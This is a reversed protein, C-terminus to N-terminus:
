ASPYQLPPLAPLAPSNRDKELRELAQSWAPSQDSPTAPPEIKLEPLPIASSKLSILLGRFVVREQRMFLSWNVDRLMATGAATDGTLARATGELATKMM